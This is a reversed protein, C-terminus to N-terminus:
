VWSGCRHEAWLCLGGQSTPAFGLAELKDASKWPELIKGLNSLMLTLYVLFPFPFLFFLYHYHTALPHKGNQLNILTYRHWPSSSSTATINTLSRPVTAQEWLQQVFSESSYSHTPRCVVRRYNQQHMAVYARTLFTNLLIMNKEKKHTKGVAAFLLPLFFLLYLIEASEM